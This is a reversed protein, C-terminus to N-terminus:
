NQETNLKANERWRKLHQKSRNKLRKGRTSLAPGTSKGEKESHCPEVKRLNSNWWQNFETEQVMYPAKPGDGLRMAPLDGEQIKKQFYDISLGTRNALDRTTLYKPIQETQAM